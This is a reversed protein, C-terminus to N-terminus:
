PNRGARIESIFHEGTEKFAPNLKIAVKLEGISQTRQGAALYSAALSIHFQPNNPEVELKKKWIAIVKDFRGVAAYASVYREDTPTDSGFNKVLITQVAPDNDKKAYIAVTAYIREAEAFTPDLEYATKALEYAKDFENRNVYVSILQFILTQKKPSLEVAKIGQALAEDQLGYSALLSTMFLRYRADDPSAVLQRQMEEKALNFYEIKTENDINVGRISVARQALQERTETSGFTKYALAKKFYTLGVKLDDSSIAGILAKSTLIPKINVIYISSVLGVLVISTVIQMFLQDDPKIHTPTKVQPAVPSSGHHLYALLTFFMTYSMLNDFVFINQVFYATFMATFVTKEILTFKLHEAKKWVAYLAAGFMSLYAALGLIGGATLWDFFVDHARDFWPEQGWMGPNYYKNFVINFNDQGWGLIPHKMFGKLASDWVMLRPEKSLSEFNIQSFRSLVMSDQVFSTRSAPIFILIALAIGVLSGKAYKKVRDTGHYALIVGGVVIGAMLGILAGRTATKYLIVFYLASLILYFWSSWSDATRNKLYFYIAIFILFLMHVALYTSNGFTADLRWSSQNIAFFGALQALAYSVILVGSGLITKLYGNWLKETNLVSGVVLFYACMHLLAVLGEMREYNSWFSRYFNAGLIDAVIIIGLFAGVSYLITSKAPTYSKDRLALLIWSAFIIEIIIRFVFNKGSIFPFFMTSAVYLPIFPIVFIGVLIINRLIKNLDM